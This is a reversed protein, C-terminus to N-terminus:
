EGKYDPRFRRISAVSGRDRWVLTDKTAYHVNDQKFDITYDLYLVDRDKNGWAKPAGNKVYKGTGSATCLTENNSKITCDDGNFTLILECPTNVDAVETSSIPLLVSNRDFSSTYVVEDKEIFAKHRSETVKEYGDPEKWVITDTQMKGTWEYESPGLIGTLVKTYYNMNSVANCRGNTVREEGNVIFSVNDIYYDNSDALESLNFAISYGDAQGSAFKGTLTITQWETTFSVDGIGSGKYSSPATHVQTTSTAPKTAKVDMTLTYEQNAVFATGANIWFQNDWVQSKKPNTHIVICMDQATEVRSLTKYKQKDFEDTGRRLYTATKENIYNVCFMTFDKPTLKWKAADQRLPTENEDMPTGRNIKDVGTFDGMVLPIVYTNKLSLPDNFFKENLKVEVGGRFGGGYDLVSGNVDDYNYYDKPMPKVETGDEFTLGETLSEDVSINIRADTGSYSGGFTGYITFRGENDSTNDYTEVDGLILTRIPYQYAFYATTGGDYDPFERDSNGCSMFAMAAIGAFLVSIVKSNKM